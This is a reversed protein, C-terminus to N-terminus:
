FCSRFTGSPPITKQGSGTAGRDHDAFSKFDPLIGDRFRCGSRDQQSLFQGADATGVQVVPFVLSHFVLDNQPVLVHPNDILQACTHGMVVQPAREFGTIPDGENGTRRLAGVTEDGGSFLGIKAAAEGFVDIEPIGLGHEELGIQRRLDCDQELRERDAYVADHTAPNLESVGDNYLTGAGDAKNCEDARFTLPAPRRMM